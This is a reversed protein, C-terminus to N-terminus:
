IQIQQRKYKLNGLEENLDALEDKSKIQEVQSTNLVELKRLHSLEYQNIETRIGTITETKNQLAGSLRLINQDMHEQEALLSSLFLTLVDWFLM